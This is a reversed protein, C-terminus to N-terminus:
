LSIMELPPLSITKGLRQPHIACCQLFCLSPLFVFWKQIHKCETKTSIIYFQSNPPHTFLTHNCHDYIALARACEWKKPAWTPFKPKLRAQLKNGNDGLMEQWLFPLFPSFLWQQNNNVGYMLSEWVKQWGQGSIKVQLVWIKLQYKLLKVIYKCTGPIGTRQHQNITWHFM